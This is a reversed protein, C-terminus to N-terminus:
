QVEVVEQGARTALAPMISEGTYTLFRVSGDAFLFHAGGAHLSWFHFMDCDNTANGRSFRYPGPPCTPARFTRNVELVSMHSDASGDLQQGVGAYWWGFREDTSPPREGVMLTFSTGDIIDGIRVRSNAYLLGDTTTKGSVGLYHSFAAVVNEPQPNGVRRNEVPCIYAAIEMRRIEFHPPSWFRKDEAFAKMARDWASSQEM